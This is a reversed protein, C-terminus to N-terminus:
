LVKGDDVAANRKDFASKNKYVFLQSSKFPTLVATTDGDEKVKNKFETVGPSVPM